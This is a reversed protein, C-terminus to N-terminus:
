ARASPAYLANFIEHLQYFYALYHAYARAQEPLPVKYLTYAHSCLSAYVRCEKGCLSSFNTQLDGHFAFCEACNGPKAGHFHLIQAQSSIGWYARWNFEAPMHEALRTKRVFYLNMLGQDFAPASWNVSDCYSLFGPFNDIMATMNMYLIGTNSSGSKSAEGSYSLVKPKPLTNIDFNPLFLVDSDTYLVYEFQVNIDRLRTLTRLYPLIVPIDLRLFAPHRAAPHRYAMLRNVLSLEHSILLISGSDNLRLLSLPISEPQGSVLIVPYLTSNHYYLGSTLAAKVFTFYKVSASSCAM